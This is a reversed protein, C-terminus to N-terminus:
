TRRRPKDSSVVLGIDVNLELLRKDALDLFNTKEAKKDSRQFRFVVGLPTNADIVQSLGSIQKERMWSLIIKFIGEKNDALEQLYRLNHKSKLELILFESNEKLKPSAPTRFILGLPTKDSAIQQLGNVQQELPWALVVKLIFKKNDALTQLTKKNQDDKLETLRADYMRHVQKEDLEKRTDHIFYKLMSQHLVSNSIFMRQKAGFSLKGPKSIKTAPTEDIRDRAFEMKKREAEIQLRAEEIIKKAEPTQQKKDDVMASAEQIQQQAIEIKKRSEELQRERESRFAAERLFNLTTKNCNGLFPDDDPVGMFLVHRKPAEEEELDDTEVLKLEETDERPIEAKADGDDRLVEEGIKADKVLEDKDEILPKAKELLARNYLAMEEQLEFAITAKILPYLKVSAEKKQMSRLDIQWCKSLQTKPEIHWHDTKKDFSIVTPASARTKKRAQASGSVIAVFSHWWVKGSQVMVHKLKSPNFSQIEALLKPNSKPREIEVPIPKIEKAESVTQKHEKLDNSSDRKQEQMAKPAEPAKSRQM